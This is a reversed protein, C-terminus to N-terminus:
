YFRHAFPTMIIFTLINVITTPTYRYHAYQVFDIKYQGFMALNIKLHRILGISFQLFITFKTFDLQFGLINSYSRTRFNCMRSHITVSLCRWRKNLFHSYSVRVKQNQRWTDRASYIELYTFWIFVLDYFISQLCFNYGFGHAWIVTHTDISLYNSSNAM